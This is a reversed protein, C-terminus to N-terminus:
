FFGECVDWAGKTAVDGFQCAKCGKEENDQFGGCLCVYEEWGQDGDRKM